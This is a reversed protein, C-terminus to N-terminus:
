RRHTARAYRASYDFKVALRPFVVRKDDNLITMARRAASFFDGMFSHSIMEFATPLPHGLTM